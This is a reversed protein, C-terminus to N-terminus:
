TYVCYRASHGPSDNRGDGCLCIGEYDKFIKKVLDNMEAWLEEIVLAACHKQFRHFSAESIMQLGLAQCLLSFKAYNNGTIIVASALMADNLSVTGRRQSPLSESSVWKRGHGAPCRWILELSSGVVKTDFSVQSGCCRGDLLRDCTPGVLELLKDESM